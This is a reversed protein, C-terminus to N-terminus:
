DGGEDIIRTRFYLYDGNIPSSHELNWENLNFSSEVNLEFSENSENLQSANILNVNELKAENARTIKYFAIQHSGYSGLIGAFYIQGPGVVKRKPFGGYFDIGHEVGNHSIVLYTGGSNVHGNAMVQLLEFVDGEYLTVSSYDKSTQIIDPTSETGTFRMQGYEVAFLCSFNFVLAYLIILKM